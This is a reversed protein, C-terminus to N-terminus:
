VNFNYNNCNVASVDCMSDSMCEGCICNGYNINDFHYKEFCDDECSLCENSQAETLFPGAIAIFLLVVAFYKM